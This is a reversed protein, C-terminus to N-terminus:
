EFSRPNFLINHFGEHEKRYRAKGLVKENERERETKREM